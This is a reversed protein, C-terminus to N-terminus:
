ILVFHYLRNLKNNLFRLGRMWVFIYYLTCITKIQVFLTYFADKWFLWRSLGAMECSCPVLERLLFDHISSIFCDKFPIMTLISCQIQCLYFMSTKVVNCSDIFYNVANLLVSLIKPIQQVNTFILIRVASFLALSLVSLHCTYVTKVCGIKSEMLM